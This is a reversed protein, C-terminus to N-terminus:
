RTFRMTVRRGPHTHEVDVSTAVGFIVKSGVGVGPDPTDLGSGSDWISLIVSQHRLWGDLQFTTCGSHRVANSAAETVALQVSVLLDPSLGKDACWETVRARAEPVSAAECPLQAHLEASRSETEAWSV